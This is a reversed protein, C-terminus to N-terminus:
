RTANRDRKLVLNLERPQNAFVVEETSDKGWYKGGSQKLMTEFQRPTQDTMLYFIYGEDSDLTWGPKEASFHAAQVGIGLPVDDEANVLWLGPGFYLRFKGDSDTRTRGGGILTGVGTRARVEVGHMPNGADDTVRGFVSFPFRDDIEAQSLYNPVIAIETSNHGRKVVVPILEKVPEYQVFDNVHALKGLVQVTFEGPKLHAYRVEGKDGTWEFFNGSGRGHVIPVGSETRLRVALGAIPQRTDMDVVRVAFDANGKTLVVDISVPTTGDYTFPGSMGWPTPDPTKMKRRYTVATVRYQGPKLSLFHFAKEKWDHRGDNLYASHAHVWRANQKQDEWIVPDYYGFSNQGNVRKAPKAEHPELARWLMLYARSISKGHADIPRVTLAPGIKGQKIEHEKEGHRTEQANSVERKEGGGNSVDGATNSSVLTAAAITSALIPGFRFLMM